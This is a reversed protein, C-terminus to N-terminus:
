QDAYVTTNEEKMVANPAEASSVEVAVRHDGAAVGDGRVKIIVEEGAALSRIPSFIVNQGQIQYQITGEVETPRIGNAFAMGVRIDTAAKSGQNTVRVVYETESGVEIHDAKDDIEFFLEPSEQVVMMARDQALQNLDATVKYDIALEGTQTPVTVLRVTGKQNIPLESLEWYVAHRQPDYSGNSDCEIFDLGAPLQAMLVVNTAPATGNNVMELKHIAQRDLFRRTPGAMSVRLQPAIVELDLAERAVLGGQGTVVIPQNVVGASKADLVLQIERFEGPGLTGIESKLDRGVPHSLHESVDTEVMVDKAIGNGDNRVKLGVIVEEGITVQAPSTKTISLKPQTVVTKVSAQAQFHVEAVSGIEGTQMPTIRMEITKEEGPAMRGLSWVLVGDTESTPQPTSQNFEAGQPVRDVVRVREAVVNGTNRVVLIFEAEQGVQVEAPARKEIM